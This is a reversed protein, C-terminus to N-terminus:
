KNGFQGGSTQPLLVNGDRLDIVLRRQGQSQLEAKPTFFTYIYKYPANRVYIAKGWPLGHSVLYKHIIIDADKKELLTKEIPKSKPADMMKNVPDVQCALLNIAVCLAFLLKNKM